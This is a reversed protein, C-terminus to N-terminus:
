EEVYRYGRRPQFQLVLGDNDSSEDMKEEGDSVDDIEDDSPPGYNVKEKRCESLWGVKTARWRKCHSSLFLLWNRSKWRYYVLLECETWNTVERGEYQAAGGYIWQPTAYAAEAYVIHYGEQWATGILMCCEVENVTLYQLIEAVNAANLFIRSAFTRDIEANKSSSDSQVVYIQKSQNSLNFMLYIGVGHQVNVSIAKLTGSSRINSPLSEKVLNSKFNSKM